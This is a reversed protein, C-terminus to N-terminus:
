QSSHRDTALYIMKVHLLCGLRPWEAQGDVLLFDVGHVLQTCRTAYAPTWICVSILSMWPRVHSQFSKICLLVFTNTHVPTQIHAYQLSRYDYPPRFQPNVALMKQVLRHRESELKKRTRVERTNTRKGEHNYVPEPSPSRCWEAAVWM